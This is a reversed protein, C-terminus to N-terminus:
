GGGLAAPGVGDEFSAIVNAATNENAEEDLEAFWDVIEEPEPEPPADAGNEDPLTALMPSVNKEDALVRMAAIAELTVHGPSKGGALLGPTSYEKKYDLIRFALNPYSMLAGLTRPDLSGAIPELAACLRAEM